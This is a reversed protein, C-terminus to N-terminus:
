LLNSIGDGAGPLSVPSDYRAAAVRPLGGTKQISQPSLAQGASLPLSKQEIDAMVIWKWDYAAWEWADHGLETFFRGDCCQQNAVEPHFDYVDSARHEM